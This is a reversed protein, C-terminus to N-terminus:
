LGLLANEVVETLAPHIYMQDNAMQDVTQGFRMGQILQQLLTSAQPGIIHAGLLMRTEAHAILKVFSDGDELAWGYATDGYNQTKTVYPTGAKIVESETLGVAAVQPHGFVAHPVLSLDRTIMDDPNALNHAVVRAEHNASHKLQLATTIDGLAWVGDVNTRGHDDTVIYGADDIEIGAVAADLTDANPIRGTAVLIMDTDISRKDGRVDIELTISSDDNRFCKDVVTGCLVNFRKGYVETFRRSIDEDEYRLFLESRNIITLDSGLSGFVHGLESAIYGAGLVVMRKPLEDIRMVTDSTFYGTEVLGELDPVFVRAGAAAVINTATIQEGAVDLIKPGVFKAEAKFVTVNPNEHIRYHEGGAAIPDIRGFVRDRIAPWDAGNFATSIGYRDTDGAYAALDATYVFMKSPICGVNLCTGGFVGKEVIAVRKDDFFPTVLSNGSGSGIIILDFEQM